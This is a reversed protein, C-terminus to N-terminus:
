PGETDAVRVVHLGIGSAEHAPGYLHVTYRGASLRHVVPGAGAVTVATFDECRGCHILEVINSTGRGGAIADGVIGLEYYGDAPVDLTRVLLLTDGDFPGIVGDVDCSLTVFEGLVEGDWALVPAECEFRAIDFGAAGCHRVNEREFAAAAEEFSEGFVASFVRSVRGRGDLFRLQSYVALFKAIGHREIVFAVFAGALPYLEAPLFGFEHTEFAALVDAATAPDIHTTYPPAQYAVALGEIFFSPPLGFRLALAHVLEHDLPAMTAYVDGDISCGGADAVCITRAAFGAHDLWYYNIVEDGSPPPVGWVGALWAVYADMHGVLDGCPTLEPDVAIQVHEGFLTPEPLTCAMLALLLGFRRM